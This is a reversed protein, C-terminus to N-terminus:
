DFEGLVVVIEDVGIEGIGIEGNFDFGVVGGDSGGIVIGFFKEVFEDGFFERCVVDDVFFEVVVVGVGFLDLDKIGDVVGFGEYGGYWEEVGEDCEYVIVLGDEVCDVLGDEVLEYDVVVGDCCEVVVGDVDM